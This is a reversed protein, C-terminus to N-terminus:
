LAGHDRELEIRNMGVRQLGEENVCVSHFLRKFAKSLTFAFFRVTSLKLRHAMEELIAAAEEQVLEVSEGSEASVQSM